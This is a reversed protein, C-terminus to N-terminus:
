SSLPIGTKGMRAHFGLFSLEKKCHVNKSRVAPLSQLPGTGSDEGERWRGWGPIAIFMHRAPPFWLIIHHKTASITRILHDLELIMPGIPLIAVSVGRAVSPSSVYRTSAMDCPVNPTAFTCYSM